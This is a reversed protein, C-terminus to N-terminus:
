NLKTKKPAEDRYVDHFLYLGKTKTIYEAGYKSKKFYLTDKDLSYFANKPNETFIKQYKKFIFLRNTYLNASYSNVNYTTIIAGKFFSKQTIYSFDEISYREILSQKSQPKNYFFNKKNEDFSSMIAERSNDIVMEISVYCTYVPIIIIYPGMFFFLIPFLLFFGYTYIGRLARYVLSIININLGLITDNTNKHDVAILFRDLTFITIANIIYMGYFWRFEWGLIGCIFGFYIFSILIIRKGYKRITPYDRTSHYKDTSSTLIEKRKRVRRSYFFSVFYLIWVILILSYIIM